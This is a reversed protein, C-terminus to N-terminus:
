HPTVRSRQFTVNPNFVLIVLADTFCVTYTLWYVAGIVNSGVCRGCIPDVIALICSPFWQVCYSYIIIQFRIQPGLRFWKKVSVNRASRQGSISTLEVGRNPAKRRNLVTLIIGSVVVISLLPLFWLTSILLIEVTRNEYSIDFSFDDVGYKIVVPTWIVFGILWISVFILKPNRSILDSEYTNPATISRLRIWTMYLMHLSTIANIGNDYVAWFHATLQGLPWYGFLDHLHFLPIDILGTIGDVLCHAILIQDFITTRIPKKVLLIIVLTNLTVTLVSLLIGSTAKLWNSSYIQSYCIFFETSSNFIQPKLCSILTENDM